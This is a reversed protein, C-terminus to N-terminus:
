RRKLWSTSVCTLVAAFAPQAITVQTAHGIGASIPWAYRAGGVANQNRCLRDADVEMDIRIKKEEITSTSSPHPHPRWQATWRGPNM